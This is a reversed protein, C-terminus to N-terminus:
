KALMLWSGSQFWESELEGLEGTSEIEGLFNQLINIFL